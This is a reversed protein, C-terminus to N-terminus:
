QVKGSMEFMPIYIALMVIAITFGMVIIIGPELLKTVRGILSDMKERYYPAIQEMVHALQASQEGIHAMNTMM